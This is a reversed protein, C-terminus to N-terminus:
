DCIVHPGLDSGGIGINIISKIRAGNYGRWEGSRVQESFNRMQSLVAKVKPMVNRGNVRIPKSSRNRLATHLVSRGETSNIAEGSVMNDRWEEINSQRALAFLLQMTKDTIRNKSYDLFIDNLSASFTEFRHPDEAFMDRMHVDKIEEYHEKLALWAPSEILDKM